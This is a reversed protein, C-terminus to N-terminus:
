QAGMPTQLGAAGTPMPPQGQGNALKAQQAKMADLEQLKQQIGDEIEKRLTASKPVQFLDLWGPTLQELKVGMNVLQMLGDRAIDNMTDVDPIQEVVYDFQGQRIDIGSMDGPKLDIAKTQEQDDTIYSVTRETFVCRMLGLLKEAVQRQAENFGDSSFIQTSLSASQRKQIAVGSQANTEIGLMEDYVGLCAEIERKHIELSQYHQAIEAAHTDIRFEKGVNKVIISNPKNIEAAVDNVNDVAAKDMVVQRSAMLWNIKAQKLNYLRQPDKAKYVLGFPVGDRLSRAYVVPTLLFQGVAPDLQYPSEFEELDISGCFYVFCVKYGDNVQILSKSSALKEAEKKDFTNVILNDKTPVTYYKAPERYQYEIIAVEKDKENWYGGFNLLKQPSDAMGQAAALTFTDGEGGARSLEDKKNPFRQQAEELSMWRVRAVFGQNTMLQSHDRTDWVVDLPNETTETIREGEVDFAHWGLGCIRAHHKAESLIRSTRNKEQVFLGVASIAEAAAVEKEKGSRSKYKFRTRMATEKGALADLRQGIHNVTVPKLGAAELTALDEASWQRGEYYDIDEIARKVWDQYAPSWIAAEFTERAEQFETKETEAV